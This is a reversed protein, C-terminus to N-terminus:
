KLKEDILLEMEKKRSKDLKLEQRLPDTSLKKENINHSIANIQKAYLSCFKCAALHITLNFNEKCTLKEDQRKSVLFAAKECAIMMNAMQEMFFQKM